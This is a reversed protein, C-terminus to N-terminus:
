ALATNLKVIYDFCPATPFFIDIYGVMNIFLQSSKASVFHFLGGTIVADASSGVARAKTSNDWGCYESSSPLHEVRSRLTGLTGHHTLM